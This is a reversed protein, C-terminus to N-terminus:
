LWLNKIEKIEDEDKTGFSFYNGNLIFKEVNEEIITKWFLKTINENPLDKTNSKDITFGSYNVFIDSSKIRAGPKLFFWQDYIDYIPGNLEEKSLSDFYAIENEFKWGRNIEEETLLMADSDFSIVALNKNLIFQSFDSIFKEMLNNASVLEIWFFDDNYGEKLIM